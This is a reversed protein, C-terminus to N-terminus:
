DLIYNGLKAWPSMIGNHGILDLPMTLKELSRLIAFEGAKISLAPRDETLREVTGHKIFQHGLRLDYSAGELSNVDFPEILSVTSVLERIESDVLVSGPLITESTSTEMRISKTRM